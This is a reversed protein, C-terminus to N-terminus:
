KLIIRVPAHDSTRPEALCWSKHRTDKDIVYDVCDKKLGSSLLILDIRYGINRQFAGARYDWWTFTKPPFDFDNFCDHFGLNYLNKLAEREQSSCLIQDRTLEIDFVDNDTPAINFDGLLVVKDSKTLLKKSYSLLKKLWLLKHEFKDTGINQGNVVYLNVITIGDITVALSRAENKSTNVPNYEINEPIKKSIIAVGNYTKQGLFTSHYGADQIESEPFNKDLSKTEQLVLVDPKHESLYQIVAHIRVKISNVNWTSIIM